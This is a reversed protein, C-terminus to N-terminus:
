SGSRKIVDLAQAEVEDAILPHIDYWEDGNRYALVQHTDLFRALDPLQSALELSARQTRRIHAMWVAHEDAIPLMENKLKSLARKFNPGTVPLADAGVVVDIFLRLVDRLHGGSKEVLTVFRAHDGLLRNWDGRANMVAEFAQIGPAFPTGDAKETVKIATLMQCGDYLSGVQAHRVKLWPPVTYVVHLGSLRLKDYQGFFLSEISSQVENATTFTGRIHEISDVLFVVQTDPKHKARVKAVVETLYKEVEAHLAGIHGAMRKQLRARFTTDEKLGLKLEGGVEGLKTGHVAPEVKGSITAERAEIRQIFAAIRGWFGEGIDGATLAGDAILAEGFAGALFMLFDPVDIPVSTNLYEEIDALVVVMGMARLESRLRRLETSKGTGRFGSLLQASRTQRRNWTIVRRLEAVPDTMQLDPRSSLAVYRPDRAPELPVDRLSNYFEEMWALDNDNLV